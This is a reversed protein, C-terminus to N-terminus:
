PERVTAVLRYIFQGPTGAQAFSSARVQAYYTGAALNHAGNYLPLTGTGDIMSCFGRGADDDDVLLVGNADFLTLRADINGAECTEITRDGEIIELRLSSGSQPVDIAYFDSDVNLTHDGFVFVDPGVAQINTDATAIVENAESELGFDAQSQVDLLYSSVAANNGNEEVQVYFTGAPLPFTIESCALIGQSNVDAIVQVGLSDFVRVILAQGAACDNISTFSEFRVFGAAALNLRYRDQDGIPSIAGAFLSSGTSVIGNMDAEVSTGNPEIEQTANEAICTASCGDGNNQNGDDCQEGPFADGNGCVAYNFDVDLYYVPIVTNDQFDIVRVYVTQGANLTFNTLLSCSLIGGEDNSALLVNAADRIEVVTDLGVGCTDPGGAGFTELTIIATTATPNNLAFFDDDGVPTIAGGLFVDDTFPGQANQLLFDNTGVAVNADDNPEIEDTITICPTVDYACDNACQITGFDFGQNGCTAGNLDGAECQEDGEVLDDGCTTCNDTDLASCDAVCAIAGGDFGESECTNGSVDDGDCIENGEALDDGCLTCQSQDFASCDAACSLTGDTFGQSTCDEGDLAAGDCVEPGGIAGDGCEYCGTTDFGGCNADCALTGGDFGQGACDQGALDNGDCIEKGEIDNNGCAFNICADTNFTLCDDACALTGADFNQLVCDQGALDVGDCVEPGEIAGDGCVPGGGSSSESESGSESSSGSETASESESTESSSASPDDTTSSDATTLTTGGESSSSSDASTATTTTTLSTSPDDTASTESSSSDDAVVAGDDACAAFLIVAGSLKLHLSSRLM